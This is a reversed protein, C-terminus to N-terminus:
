SGAVSVVPSNRCDEPSFGSARLGRLTTSADRKSLRRGMEDRVLPCHYFSPPEWGFARYLLIQRFTSAMLDGGRVVESIQMLADDVVCALQYSPLGDKRWVLFDGFDVGAVASQEGFNGDNFRIEEGYPVAFRWNQRLSASPNGIFAQSDATLPRPPEAVRLELSPRCTGPYIPEDEGEHPAGVAAMVDRRSCNCPYIFGARALKEFADRYLPIRVSQTYPAFHGGVDPGEQWNLGLWHLDEYMADVYEQRVRPRDLDDDRFILIGGAALAREQAIWFTCAHGRHLYGTPSPALRGRYTVTNVKGVYRIPAFALDIFGAEDARCAM